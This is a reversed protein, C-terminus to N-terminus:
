LKAFIANAITKVGPEVKRPDFTGNGEYVVTVIIGNRYAHIQTIEADRHKFAIEGVGDIATGGGAFADIKARTGVDAHVLIRVPPKDDFVCQGIMGEASGYGDRMARFTDGFATKVDAELACLDVSAHEQKPPSSGPASGSAPVRDESKGCAVSAVVFLLFRNM